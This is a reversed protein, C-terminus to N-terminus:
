HDFAQHSASRSAVAGNTNETLASWCRTSLEPFSGFRPAYRISMSSGRMEFVRRIQGAHDTAYNPAAGVAKAGRKLGEVMLEDTGSQQHAGGALIM